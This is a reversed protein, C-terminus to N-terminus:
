RSPRFLPGDPEPVTEPKPVTTLVGLALFLAGASSGVAVAYGFRAALWGGLLGAVVWGIGALANYLGLALGRNERRALRSILAIGSLQFYSWSLGYITFAILLAPLSPTGNSLGLFGATTAFLVLRVAVVGIQVRRTGIRGIRKAAMPYAVVVGAHQLAFLAFVMWSAYEFREALLLPLPIGFLGLGMFAILTAALFRKTGPRFGDVGFLSAVARKPHLRHYLHFPAFRRKELLFNGMAPIIGRYHRQTYRSTTRPIRRSAMAAAVLGGLALLGFLVRISVDERLLHTGLALASSGIILGLVWGLAGMQNLRSVKEEWSSPQENEIVLLVTVSANAVWFFNLLMNAWLFSAFSPVFAMALFCAGAAAYSLVVFPKRRHARDSLRGWLLSGGVGMLSVLGSLVGLAGVSRDLVRSLMLPVLVSSTGLVLNALLVARFWSEGCPRREHKVDSM